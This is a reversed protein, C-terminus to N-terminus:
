RPVRPTSKNQKRQAKRPIPPAKPSNKPTIKDARNRLKSARKAALVRKQQELQSSGVARLPLAPLLRDIYAENGLNRLFGSVHLEWENGWRHVVALAQHHRAQIDLALAAAYLVSLTNGVATLGNTFAAQGTCANTSLGRLIKTGERHETECNLKCWPSSWEELIPIDAVTAAGGSEIRRMIAVAPFKRDLESRLPEDPERSYVFSYQAALNEYHIWLSTYPSQGGSYRQFYRQWFAPLHNVVREIREIVQMKKWRDWKKIISWVYGAPFEKREMRVPKGTSKTRILYEPFDKPSILPSYDAEVLDFLRGSHEARPPHLLVPLKKSRTLDFDRQPEARFCADLCQLWTEVHPKLQLKGTTAM